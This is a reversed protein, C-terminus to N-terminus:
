ATEGAEAAPGEDFDGALGSEVWGQAAVEKEIRIIEEISREPPHQNKVLHALCGVLEDLGGDKRVVVEGEREEFLLRDGPELNLRRRIVAPITTQGKSTLTSFQM